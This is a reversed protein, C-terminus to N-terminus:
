PNEPDLKLFKGATGRAVGGSLEFGAIAFPGFRKAFMIGIADDLFELPLNGIEGRGHSLTDHNGGGIQCAGIDIQHSAVGVGTGAIRALKEEPAREWAQGAV